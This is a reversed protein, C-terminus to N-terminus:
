LLDMETGHCILELIEEYTGTRLNSSASMYPVYEKKVLAKFQYEDEKCYSFFHHPLRSGTEKDCALLMYEEKLNEKYGFFAIKEKRLVILYDTFSPVHFFEESHFFLSCEEIKWWIEEMEPFSFDLCYFIYNTTAFVLSLLFEEREKLSLDKIRKKPQYSPCLKEFRYSNFSPHFLIFDKKYRHCSDMLHGPHLCSIASYPFSPTVQIKKRILDMLFARSGEGYIGTTYGFLMPIEFGKDSSSLIIEQDM